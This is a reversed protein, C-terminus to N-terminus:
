VTRKKKLYFMVALATVTTGMIAAPVMIMDGTKPNSSDAKSGSSSTSGNIQANHVMVYLVTDRDNYVTVKEAINLKHNDRLYLEWDDPLFPGYSTLPANNNSKIHANVVSKVEDLTIVQDQAYNFMDEIRVLNTSVGNTYIKLYVNYNYNRAWKAYLVIGARDVTGTAKITCNSDLYWGELHYWNSFYGPHKANKLTDSNLVVDMSTGEYFYGLDNKGSSNVNLNYRVMYQQTTAPPTTPESTAPPTSQTKLYVAATQGPLVKTTLNAHQNNAIADVYELTVSDDVTCCNNILDQITIEGGNHTATEKMEGDVYFNVTVPEVYNDNEVGCVQCVPENNGFDHEGTANTTVKNQIADCNSCAQYDTYGAAGCTADLGDVDTWDHVQNNTAAGCFGREGNGNDYPCDCLGDCDTDYHDQTQDAHDPNTCNGYHDQCYYGHKGDLENSFMALNWNYPGYEHTFDPKSIPEVARAAMPLVGVLLVLALAMSLVKKLTTKM